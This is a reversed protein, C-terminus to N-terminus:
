SFVNFLLLTYKLFVFPILMILFIMFRSSSKTNGAVENFKIRYGDARSMLHVFCILFPIGIFVLSVLYPLNSGYSIRGFTHVLMFTALTFYLLYLPGIRLMDKYIVLKLSSVSALDGGAEPEHGRMEVEDKM